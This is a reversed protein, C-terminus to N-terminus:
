NEPPEHSLIYDNIFQTRDTYSLIGWIIRSKRYLYSRDNYLVRGHTINKIREYHNLHNIKAYEELDFLMVYPNYNIVYFIDALEYDKVYSVIDMRLEKPQPNSIYNRIHLILERPLSQIMNEMVFVHYLFDVKAYLFLAVCVDIHLATNSLVL